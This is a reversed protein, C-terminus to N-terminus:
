LSALYTHLKSDRERIHRRLYISLTDVAAADNLQDLGDRMYQHEAAHSETEPFAHKQMRREESAFHEHSWALLRTKLDSTNQGQSLADRLEKMLHIQVEHEANLLRAEKALDSIM